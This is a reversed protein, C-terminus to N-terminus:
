CMYISDLLITCIIRNAFCFYVCIYLVFIHTVLPPPIPLNPNVCICQQYQTYFLYSILVYQIVCPVRSLVSHHGSCSPLGFSLPCMYM